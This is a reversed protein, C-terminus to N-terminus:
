SCTALGEGVATKMVSPEFCFSCISGFSLREDPGPSVSCIDPVRATYSHWIGSFTHITIPPPPRTPLCGGERLGLKRM